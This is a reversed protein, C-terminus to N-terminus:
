SFLVASFVLGVAGATLFILGVGATKKRSDMENRGTDSLNVVPYKSRGILYMILGSSGEGSLAFFGWFKPHKLGRSDADLVTMQYIQYVTGAAGTFMVAFSIIGVVINWEM